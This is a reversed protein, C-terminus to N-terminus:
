TFCLSHNYDIQMNKNYIVVRKLACNKKLVIDKTQGSPIETVSINEPKEFSISKYDPYGAMGASEIDGFRLYGQPTIIPCYVEFSALNPTTNKIKITVSDQNQSGYTYFACSLACVITVIKKM